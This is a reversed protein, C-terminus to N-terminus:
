IEIEEVITQGDPEADEDVPRLYVAIAGRINALAEEKSEGESVCGPLSPVYVSYGGDGNPELIVKMRM